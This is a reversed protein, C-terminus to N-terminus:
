RVLEKAVNIVSQPHLVMNSYSANALPCQCLGKRIRERATKAKVSRWVSPFDYNNERLNGVVVAEVCCPWVEGNYQVQASAYGAFCPIAQKRDRLNKVVNKYYTLRFARTARSLGQWRAERMRTTLKEIAQAYQEATPTIGANLAGRSGDPNVHSMELREEAVESIFQDAALESFAEVIDEFDDINFRSIVTHIGVTLNHAKIAKLSHFVDIARKYHGPVGRIVDNKDPNCHDLSVNIVLKTNPHRHAMEWVYEPVRRTLSNTPINIIKPRCNKVLADHIEILDRRYFPEGGSLTCWFPSNGLSQFIKTWEDLTLDDPNKREWIFCTLCRSNCFGTMSFTYNTPLPSQGGVARATYYGPARIVLEKM